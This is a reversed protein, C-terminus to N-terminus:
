PQQQQLQREMMQYLLSKRKERRPDPAPTTPKPIEMKGGAALCRKLERDQDDVVFSVQLLTWSVSPESPAAIKGSISCTLKPQKGPFECEDARVIRGAKIAAAYAPLPWSAEKELDPIAKVMREAAPGADPAAMRERLRKSALLLIGASINGDKDPLDSVIKGSSFHRLGQDVLVLAAESLPYVPPDSVAIYTVSGQFCELLKDDSSFRAAGARGSHTAPGPPPPPSPKPPPPSTSPAEVPAAAPPPPMAVSSSSSADKCAVLAMASVIAINARM